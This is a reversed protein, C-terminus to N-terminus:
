QKKTDFIYLVYFESLELRGKALEYYPKDNEPCSAASPAALSTVTQCFVFCLV